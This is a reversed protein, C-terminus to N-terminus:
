LILRNGEAASHRIGCSFYCGCHSGGEGGPFSREKQHLIVRLLGVTNGELEMLLGSFAPSDLVM